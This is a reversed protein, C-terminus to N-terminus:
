AATYTLLADLIVEAAMTKDAEVRAGERKILETKDGVKTLKVRTETTEGGRKTKLIDELRTCQRDLQRKLPEGSGRRRRKTKWREKQKRSCSVRAAKTLKKRRRGMVM